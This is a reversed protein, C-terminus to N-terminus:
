KWLDLWQTREKREKRLDRAILLASAVFIAAFAALTVTRWPEPFYWAM